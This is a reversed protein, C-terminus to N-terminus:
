PDPRNNRRIWTYIMVIVFEALLVALSYIGGFTPQSFGILFLGPIFPAVVVAGIRALQVIFQYFDRRAVITQAKDIHRHRETSTQEALKIIRDAAGPVVDEYQKLQEPSPLPGRHVKLEAEVRRMAPKKLDGQEDDIPAPTKPNDAM